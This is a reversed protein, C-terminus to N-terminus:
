SGHKGGGLAAVHIGFASVTTVDSDWNLQHWNYNLCALCVLAAAADISWYPINYFSYHVYGPYAITYPAVAITCILLFSSFFVQVLASGQPEIPLKTNDSFALGCILFFAVVFVIAKM